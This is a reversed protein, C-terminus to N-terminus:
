FKEPRLNNTLVAAAPEGGWLFTKESQGLPLNTWSLFDGAFEFYMRKKVIRPRLVDHYAIIWRDLLDRTNKLICKKNTRLIFNLDELERMVNSVSGVSIGALESLERYTLQLNDPKRLLNFILKIGSEQFARAQNTKALNQAKQGSIYIFLNNQKIFTNGAVDIYNINNVKFENAVELAIYKSIVITPRSTRAILDKLQQLVIGKSSARIETRVEVAFQIDGITLLTINDKREDNVKIPTVILQGLKYAADHIYEANKNM